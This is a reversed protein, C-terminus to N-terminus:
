RSATASASSVTVKKLNDDPIRDILLGFPDVGAQDPLGDVTFTHTSKSQTLHVRERYLTKGYKKGKEPRAFAGIDIWDNLPVETENGKPDAKFKHAEIDISVDYKGDARKQATAELTRNSFITIDEFLDKLLYQLDPPTEARLADELAYSTPYPPQAYAYQQVLKRLARNVAEEGIMEKMYYLALSGKRYHVYGQQAEVSILPREKQREKGRSSLYRDMEYRLFKRMIDRGYEKEMVMLASYQALTESLFTAGQMDAGIVQHAWWQHGMEHAVVYYVMDIDDPHNLNAIFGIAESYPMTGPFAQAFSAVRPFEIIRAQRHYYPGFNKTFYDLSKKLSNMMRPVNWPHDKDYYVELKIGNWDERAVEYRASIFSYFGLSSHDLKYQFYRRGHDQWERLLSGPAVAIQDPSTSIVTEVDIWDMHGGLYTEMCHGTCNRELVPMLVQESLGYKKRDNPDTIENQTSYGVLPAIANNFFTGDQVVTTDSVENEFGRTHTKVTVHATRSEGPQLPPSFRYIQYYLRKDDKVLSAGPIEIISDYLRNLTFHIEELPKSYPNEMMADANLILNRQEPYIDIAYNISRIRPMLQNELPKYTKEFDAQLRLRDKPGHIKNLVETNYYAWSGVASFALFCVVTLAPWMGSFRLRANGLRERWQSQKGRPWFLVTLIYLLGCFLLWYVTFWNWAVRFPADGYFDSYIIRPRNAFKPLNSAINLPNWAFLNALLFVVYLFYGVYKNPSLVHIFFALVALMLFLSSDRVLLEKVYLGLQFRHFGYSAQVIVGSAFVLLQILLIIGVLATLRSAYSVWEPTPLSDTIEDMHVDRDKWVLVGAYYTIIAVLFLYLTGAIIQLIWHTVPFSSNGYGESANFAMSPVCNLLAAFLVVIFPTSRVVGLFHIRLSAFYKAWPADHFSVKPLVVAATPAASLEKSGARVKKRREAFSFRYCAFLFIAAAVAVWLLRNWLLYGSYGAAVTNKEAVTWYRTVYAYTRIGFPDLIAGLKQREVNQLLIDSVIYGALMILSAVFSVIENRALVAVAFLIAAIIFANPLAFVLIGDLHAKWALPGWRDPEIWPMYKALIIGISVGLMPIMSVLTAGFFRGLLFDFKRLPTSFIIQYTNFSFDRAAASNVFAAAMIMTILGIFAYFNQINYPSNRLTNSLADGLTINDTSAAGFIMAGIILLFIWVMWSRFWYRIEFAFM